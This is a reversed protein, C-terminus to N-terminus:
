SMKAKSLLLAISYHQAVSKGWSSKEQWDKVSSVAREDCTQKQLSLTATVKLGLLTCYRM